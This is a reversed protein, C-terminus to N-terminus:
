FSPKYSSKSAGFNAGNNTWDSTDPARFSSSGLSAPSVSRGSSMGLGDALDAISTSVNRMDSSRNFSVVAAASSDPYTPKIYHRVGNGLNIEIRLDTRFDYHVVLEYDRNNNDSITPLLESRIDDLVMGLVRRGEDASGNLFPHDINGLPTVLDERSGFSSKGRNTASFSFRNFGKTTIISPLIQAIMNALEAEMHEAYANRSDNKLGYHMEMEQHHNVRSITSCGDLDPFMRKIQNLSLRCDTKFSPVCASIYGLFRSAEANNETANHTGSIAWAMALANKHGDLVDDSEDDVWRGYNDVINQTAQQKGLMFGELLNCAARPVNNSLFASGSLKKSLRVDITEGVSNDVGLQAGITGPTLLGFDNNNVQQLGPSGFGVKLGSTFENGRLKAVPALPNTGHVRGSFTQTFQPRGNGDIRRVYLTISNITIIARDNLVIGNPGQQYAEDNETFGILTAAGHVGNSKFEINMQAVFRGRRYQDQIGSFSRDGNDLLPIAGRSKTLGAAGALAKSVLSPKFNTGGQTAVDVQQQHFPQVNMDISQSQLAQYDSVLAFVSSRTRTEISPIQNNM